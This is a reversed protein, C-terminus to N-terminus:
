SPAAFLCENLVALNDRVFNILVSFSVFFFLNKLQGNM